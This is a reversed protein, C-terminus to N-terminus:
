VFIRRFKSADTLITSNGAFNRFSPSSGFRFNTAQVSIENRFKSFPERFSTEHNFFEYSVLARNNLARILAFNSKLQSPKCLLNM